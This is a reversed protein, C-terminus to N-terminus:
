SYWGQEDDAREITWRRSVCSIQMVRLEVASSEVIQCKNEFELTIILQNIDFRCHFLCM